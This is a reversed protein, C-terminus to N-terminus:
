SGAVSSLFNSHSIMGFGAEHEPEGGRRVLVANLSQRLEVACGSRGAFHQDGLDLAPEHGREGDVAALRDRIRETARGVHHREEPGARRL